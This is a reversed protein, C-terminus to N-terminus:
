RPENASWMRWPSASMSQADTGHADYKDSALAEILEQHTAIQEGISAAAFLPDANQLAEQFVEVLIETGDEQLMSLVVEGEGIVPAANTRTLPM